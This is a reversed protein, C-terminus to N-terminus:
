RRPGLISRVRRPTADRNNLARNSGRRKIKDPPVPGCGCSSDDIVAVPVTDIVDAWDNSNRPMSTESHVYRVASGRGRGGACNHGGRRPRHVREIPAVPARGTGLDDPDLLGREAAEAVIIAQAM